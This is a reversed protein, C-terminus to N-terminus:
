KGLSRRVCTVVHDIVATEAFNLCESRKGGGCGDLNCPRCSWAPSTIVELTKTAQYPGWTSECTPGFFVVGDVGCAAAIHSAFTDIGVYFNASKILFGLEHITTQNCLNLVNGDISAEIEECFQVELPASGGTLVIQADIRAVLQNLLSRWFKIPPTKFMWNAVPHVVILCSHLDSKINKEITQRSVFDVSLPVFESCQFGLRRLVDLNREAMHRKSPSKPLKHTWFNPVWSKRRDGMSLRVRANILMSLVTSERSGHFDLFMDYKQNKLGDRLLCILSLITPQLKFVSGVNPLEAFIESCNPKCVVDVTIHPYRCQLWRIVPTLLLADGLQKCQFILIRQTNGWDPADQPIYANEFSSHSLEDFSKNVGTEYEM